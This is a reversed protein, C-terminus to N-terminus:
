PERAFGQRARSAAALVSSILVSLLVPVRLAAEPAKLLGTAMRGSSETHVEGAVAKLSGHANSCSKGAVNFPVHGPIPRSHSHSHGGYADRWRCV